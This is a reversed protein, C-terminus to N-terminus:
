ATPKALVYFTVGTTTFQLYRLTGFTTYDGASLAVGNLVGTSAANVYTGLTQSFARTAATMANYAATGAASPTYDPFWHKITRYNTGNSPAALSMLWLDSSPTAIVELENNIYTINCDSNTQPYVTNAKTIINNYDLTGSPQANTTVEEYMPVIYFTYNVILDPFLQKIVTDSLPVNRLYTVIANNMESVTPAKGHYPMIFPMDYATTSPTYRVMQQAFKTQGWAYRSRSTTGTTTEVFPGYEAEQAIIRNAIAQTAMRAAAVTSGANPLASIMDTPNCPPIVCIIESNSCETIFTDKDIYVEIQEINSGGAAYAFNFEFSYKLPLLLNIGAALTLGAKAPIISRAATASWVLSGTKYGAYLGSSGATLLGELDSQTKNQATTLLELINFLAKLKDTANTNTIDQNKYISWFTNSGTVVTSTNADAVDNSTLQGDYVFSMQGTVATAGTTGTIGIIGQRTTRPDIVRSPRIFCSDTDRDSCLVSFADLTVATDTYSVGTVGSLDDKNQFATDNLYVIM